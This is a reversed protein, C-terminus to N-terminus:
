DCCERKIAWGLELSCFYFWPAMFTNFISRGFAVTQRYKEDNFLPLLFKFFFTQQLEFLFSKGLFIVIPLSLLLLQFRILRSTSCTSSSM